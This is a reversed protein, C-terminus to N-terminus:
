KAMATISLNIHSTRKRIRAARGRPQPQFKKRTPGGDVWVKDVVMEDTDIRERREAAANEANAVASELLKSLMPASGKVTYQLITRAESVKKGRILDAVLRVKRPAIRLYKARAM